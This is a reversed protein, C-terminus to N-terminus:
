EELVLKDFTWRPRSLQGEQRHTRGANALLGMPPRERAPALTCLERSSMTFRPAAVPKGDKAPVFCIIQHPRSLDHGANKLLESAGDEPWGELFFLEIRDNVRGIGAKSEAARIRGKLRSM